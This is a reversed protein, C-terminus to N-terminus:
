NTFEISTIFIEPEGAGTANHWRAVLGIGQAYADLIDYQSDTTLVFAIPILLGDTLNPNTTIEILQSFNWMSNESLEYPLIQKENLIDDSSYVKLGDNDFAYNIIDNSDNLSVASIIYNETQSPMIKTTISKTKLKDGDKISYTLKLGEIPAYNKSLNDFTYGNSIEKEPAKQETFIMTDDKNPPYLLEPSPSVLQFPLPNVKNYAKNCSTLAFLFLSIIVVKIHKM